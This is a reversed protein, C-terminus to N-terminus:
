VPSLTASPGLALPALATANNNSEELMLLFFGRVRGEGALPLPSLGTHVLWGGSAIIRSGEM